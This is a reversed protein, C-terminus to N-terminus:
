ERTRLDREHILCWARAGNLHRMERGYKVGLPCAPAYPLAAGWGPVIQRDPPRRIGKAQVEAM